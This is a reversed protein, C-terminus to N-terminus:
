DPRSRRCRTCFAIMVADARDPSSPDPVQGRDSQGRQQILLHAQSLQQLLLDLEPLTPDISIISDADVAIGEHLARYTNQFRLRLHWWAAAKANAFFDRNKRGAVMEREPDAPV